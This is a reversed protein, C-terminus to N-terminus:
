NSLDSANGTVANNQQDKYLWVTAQKVRLTFVMDCDWVMEGM